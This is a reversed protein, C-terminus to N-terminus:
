VSFPLPYLLGANCHKELLDKNLNILYPDKGVGNACFKDRPSERVHAEMSLDGGNYHVAQVSLQGRYLCVHDSCNEMVM